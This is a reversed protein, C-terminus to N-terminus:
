RQIQAQKRRNKKWKVTLPSPHAVTQDGLKPKILLMWTRILFPRLQPRQLPRCWLRWRLCQFFICETLPKDDAKNDGAVSYLKVDPAEEEEQKIVKTKLNGSDIETEQKAHQALSCL